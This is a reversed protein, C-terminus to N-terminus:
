LLFMQFSLWHSFIRSIMIFIHNRHIIINWLTISINVWLSTLTCRWLLFKFLIYHLIIAFVYKELWLVSFKNCLSLVIQIFNLSLLLYLLYYSFLQIHSIFILYKKSYIISFIATLAIITTHYRWIILPIFLSTFNSIELWRIRILRDFVLFTDM